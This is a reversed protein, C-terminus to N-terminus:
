NTFRYKGEYKEKLDDNVYDKTIFPGRDITGRDIIQYPVNKKIWRVLKEYDKLLRIDKEIITGDDAYYKHEYSIRGIGITKEKENFITRSFQIVSSTIDSFGYKIDNDFFSLEGYEKNYIYINNDKILNLNNIENTYKLKKNVDNLEIICFNLELVYEMFRKEVEKNMYFNIQRGM